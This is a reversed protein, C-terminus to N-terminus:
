VGVDTATINLNFDGATTPTGSILGDKSLLLGPPLGDGAFTIQGVGGTVVLQHSYPQGVAGAPLDGGTYTLPADIHLTLTISLKQTM